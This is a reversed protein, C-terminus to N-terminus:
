IAKGRLMEWESVKAYDLFGFAIQIPVDFPVYETAIGALVRRLEELRDLDDPITVTKSSEVRKYYWGGFLKRRPKFVQWIVDLVPRDGVMRPLDFVAIIWRPQHTLVPRSPL